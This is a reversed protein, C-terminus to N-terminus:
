AAQSVGALYLPRRWGLAAVFAPDIEAVDLVPSPLRNM